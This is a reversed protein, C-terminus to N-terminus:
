GLPEPLDNGVIPSSEAAAVSFATSSFINSRANQSFARLMEQEDVFFRGFSFLQPPLRLELEVALLQFNTSTEILL